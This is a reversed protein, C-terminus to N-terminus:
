FPKIMDEVEGVSIGIANQGILKNEDNYKGKNKLGFMKESYYKQSQIISATHCSPDYDYIKLPNDRKRLIKYKGEITVEHTEVM